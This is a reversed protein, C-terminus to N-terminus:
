LEREICREIRDVLGPRYTWFGKWCNVDTELAVLAVPDADSGATPTFVVFWSRRYAESDGTHVTVPFASPPQWDDVGYVHVDTGGAGVSRYVRETGQEDRLRSLRQFSARLTGGDADAATREILRSIAILLLKEKDSAPYGRVRFPVEDLGKLVAPVSAEALSRAGTKYVDSNVLLVSQLLEEVTSAALMAGDDVLVVLEDDTEPLRRDEIPVAGDGVVSELLEHVAESSSRNVFLLRKPPADIETFFEELGTTM